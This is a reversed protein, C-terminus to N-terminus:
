GRRRELLAMMMFAMLGRLEDVDDFDYMRDLQYKGEWFAPQKSLRMKPSQDATSTLLYTPHFLYGTLFGFFPVEGLLSDMMKAMPNEEQITSVHQGNEDLVDYHAKWLSRMGKRRVSGFTEGNADTFHYAASWDIVRDAKIECLLQSQSEDGYVTVAEKLKFMKQKVYCVTSGHVDRVFIQPSLAMIKFTLTLPYDMLNKELFAIPQDGCSILVV